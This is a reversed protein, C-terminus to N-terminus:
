RVREIVVRIYDANSGNLQLPTTATPICIRCFRSDFMRVQIENTIEKLFGQGAAAVTHYKDHVTSYPMAMPSWLNASGASTMRYFSAWGGDSPLNIGGSNYNAVYVRVSVDTLSRIPGINHEVFFNHNGENTAFQDDADVGASSGHIPLCRGINDTLAVGATMSTDRYNVMPVWCSDYFANPRYSVTEVTSWTNGDTSSAVVEGVLTWQGPNMKVGAMWTNAASIGFPSPSAKLKVQNHKTGDYNSDSGAFIYAIGIETGGGHSGAGWGGGDTIQAFDISRKLAELISVEVTANSALRKHLAGPATGVNPGVFAPDTKFEVANQTGDAYYGGGPHGFTATPSAGDASVLHHVPMNSPQFIRYNQNTIAPSTHINDDAAIWVNLGSISEGGAPEAEHFYIPFASKAGGGDSIEIFTDGPNFWGPAYSGVLSHSGTVSDMVAELLLVQKHSHFSAKAFKVQGTIAYGGLMPSMEYKHVPHQKSGSIYPQYDNTFVPDRMFTSVVGNVQANSETAVAAYSPDLGDILTPLNNRDRLEIEANTSFWGPHEANAKDKFTSVGNFTSTNEVNLDTAEFNGVVDVKEGTTTVFTISGNGSMGDGFYIGGNVRLMAQAYYSDLGAPISGEYTGKGAWPMGITVQSAFETCGSFSVADGTRASYILTGDVDTDNVKLTLANIRINDRAGAAGGNGIQVGYGSGGFTDLTTNDTSGIKYDTELNNAMVINTLVTAKLNDLAAQSSPEFQTVLPLTIIGTGVGGQAVKLGLTQQMAMVANQVSNLHSDYIKDSTGNYSINFTDATPDTSFEISGAILDISSADLIGDSVTPTEWGGTADIKIKHDLYLKSDVLDNPTHTETVAFGGISANEKNVFIDFKNPYSISESNVSDAANSAVRNIADEVAGTYANDSYQRYSM